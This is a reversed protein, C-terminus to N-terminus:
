QFQVSSFQVSSFQVSSFQRSPLLAFTNPDKNQQEVHYITVSPILKWCYNRSILYLVPCVVNLFTLRFKYRLLLQHLVCKKSYFVNNSTNCSINFTLMRVATATFHIYHNPKSKNAPEQQLVKGALCHFVSHRLVCIRVQGCFFLLQSPLNSWVTGICTTHLISFHKQSITDHSGCVMGYWVAIYRVIGLWEIGYCVMCYRGYWVIGYWEMGYTVM